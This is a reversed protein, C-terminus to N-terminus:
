LAAEVHGGFGPLAGFYHRDGRRINLLASDGASVKYFLNFM